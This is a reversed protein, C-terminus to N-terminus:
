RRKIQLLEVEFILNSNPPIVPPAGMAGYGKAAPIFLLAKEGKSMQLMGEEWGNIVLGRGIVFEFPKGRTRSSDFMTGDPLFGAYHVALTDGPKPYNKRDGPSLEHPAVPSSSRDDEISIEDEEISIDVEDDLGSDMPIHDVLEVTLHLTEGALEHSTDVVISTADIEVIQAMEGDGDVGLYAGVELDAEESPLLNLESKPIRVLNDQDGAPGFAGEPPIVITKKQGKVMGLLGKELGPIIEGEGLTIKVPETDREDFIEGDALRGETIIFVQDGLRVKKKSDTSLMRVGVASRAQKLMTVSPVSSVGRAPM